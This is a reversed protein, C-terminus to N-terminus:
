TEMREEGREGQQIPRRQPPRYETEQSRQRDLVPPSCSLVTVSNLTSTFLYRRQSRVRQARLSHQLRPATATRLRPIPLALNETRIAHRNSRPLGHQPSSLTPIHHLSQVGPHRARTFGLQITKTPVLYKSRFCLRLTEAEPDVSRGLLMLMSTLRVSSTAVTKSDRWFVYKLRFM